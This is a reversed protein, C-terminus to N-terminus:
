VRPLHRDYGFRELLESAQRDFHHLLENPIEDKYGGVSGKRVFSKNEPWKKSHWGYEREKRQMESFSCGEIARVLVEDEREIEAFACLRKIEGLPDRKLDEYRVRLIEADFPNELWQQGHDHWTCPFLGRGGIIMEELTVRAGLNRQHAYYSAMVDRGDRVLHVVRRYEPRPLHHTKFFCVTGFRKYYRKHHVDPVVEQVLKDPLYRTDVGFLVGTILHQIWTNGSKPYGAVFIDQPETRAIPYFHQEALGEEWRSDPSYGLKRFLRELLRSFRQM